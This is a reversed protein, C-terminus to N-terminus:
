EGPRREGPMAQAGLWERAPEAVIPACSSASRRSRSTARCAASPCGCTSARPARCSSGAASSGRATTSSSCSRREWAYTDGSSLDDSGGRPSARSAAAAGAMDLNLAQTPSSSQRERRGPLRAATRGARRAQPRAVNVVTGRPSRQVCMSRRRRHGQRTATSRSVAEGAAAAARAKRTARRSRMPVPEAAANFVRLDGLDRRAAGRYLRPRSSARPLALAAATSRCRCRTRIARGAREQAAAGPALLRLCCCCGSEHAAGGPEAAGAFSLRDAADLVGVGIFSVIREVTGVGSLDVLFLKAVVVAMLAAGVIWLPRLARRTAVVMAGLALLMWLISFAAQVLRSSLMPAPRVARRGMTCRACSRATSGSSRGRAFAGIVLGRMTHWGPGCATSAARACGPPSSSSPRARHRHRAPQAAARVAASLPDGNSTFNAYLVWGALFMALPAGGAVVYAPRLGRGALAGARSPSCLAALLAAPVIAWSIAPWVRKGEVARDILWGVERAGLLALM